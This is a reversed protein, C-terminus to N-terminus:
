AIFDIGLYKNQLYDEVQSREATSLARDYILAAAVNLQSEGLGAIEAGLVLKKLDTNFTHTDSDILVGNRYHSTVNNALVVSHVLFGGTVGNQTSPFDNGSGWGQVTLQNNKNAVLGFTENPAGDGYVLGSTVGEPNVYDVVLFMTRNASGGVLGSLPNSVHVRQLLDATGDFVIAAKGTPTAAALLAPDGAAALHNGRGSGDGWATVNSGAGLSVATDSEYRAVLGTTVLQGQVAGVNITVPASAGGTVQYTFNDTGTFGANPTYTFSGNTGLSLTGNSVNTKLQATFPDGEPDSDNALVGNAASVTLVTGATATYSDNVARAPDNVPTGTLTVTATDTGGKGDSVQYVFSDGGNFDLKPTYSFSGNANLALSGNAVNTVLSVTLADGNPDTDAGGGNNVLVNGTLLTDEIFSFQDNKADPPSNAPTTGGLYKAQLFAEVQGRETANLARNYILVAGLAMQSEGLGKIEAGLVLKKLDTNFTHPDSDILTGNKYHSTVNNALVVSHVLFGGTVGNQTSPFDNGSGWGQVSSTATRTQSM